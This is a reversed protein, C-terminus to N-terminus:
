QKRQSQKRSRQVADLAAYFTPALRETFPGSDAIMRSITDIEREVSERGIVSSARQMRSMLSQLWFDDSAQTFKNKRFQHIEEAAKELMSSYTNM